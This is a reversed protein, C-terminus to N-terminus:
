PNNQVPNNNQFIYRSRGGRARIFFYLSKASAVAFVGCRWPTECSGDNKKSDTQKFSGFPKVAHTSVFPTGISGRFRTRLREINRQWTNTAPLTQFFLCALPQTSFTRTLSFFTTKAAFPQFCVACLSCMIMHLLPYANPTTLLFTKQRNFFFQVHRCMASTCNPIPTQPQLYFPKKPTLLLVACWYLHTTHTYFFIM